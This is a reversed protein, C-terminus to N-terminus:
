CSRGHNGQAQQQVEKRRVMETTRYTAVKEQVGKVLSRLQEDNEPPTASIADRLAECDWYMCIQYPEVYEQYYIASTKAYLDDLRATDLRDDHIIFREPKENGSFEHYQKPDLQHTQWILDIDSTPLITKPEEPDRRFLRFFHEYRTKARELTHEMSPLMHCMKNVFVGQRRIAALMALVAGDTNRLHVRAYHEMLDRELTVPIEAIASQDIHPEYGKLCHSTEPNMGKADHLFDFLGLHM